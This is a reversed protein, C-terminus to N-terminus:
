AKKVTKIVIFVKSCKIGIGVISCKLVGCIAHVEERTGITKDRSAM